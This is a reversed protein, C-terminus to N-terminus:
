GEETLEDSLWSIKGADGSLLKPWDAELQKFSIVCRLTVVNEISAFTKRSEYQRDFLLPYNYSDPLERLRMPNLTHMVAGVLAAQHLFVWHNRSSRCLEALESDRGLMEMGAQWRHMIGASIRAILVGAQFFPRIVQEDAQSTMPFLQDDTLGELHLIREWYPSPPASWLSGARNHMVPRYALDIGVVLDFEVPEDLFITDNDLWAIVEYDAALEEMRAAAFPKGAYFLWQLDEPTEVAIITTAADVVKGLNLENRRHHPICVKVPLDAFRGGYKRLSRILRCVRTLDDDHEAFTGIFIKNRLKM